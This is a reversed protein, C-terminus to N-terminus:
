RKISVGAYFSYRIGQYGFSKRCIIINELADQVTFKMGKDHYWLFFLFQRQTEKIALGWVQNLWM